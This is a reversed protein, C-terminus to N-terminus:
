WWRSVRWLWLWLWLWLLALIFVSVLFNIVLCFHRRELFWRNGIIELVTDYDTEVLEGVTVSDRNGGCLELRYSFVQRSGVGERM